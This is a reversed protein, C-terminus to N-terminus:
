DPMYEYKNSKFIRPANHGSCTKAQALMPLTEDLIFNGAATVAGGTLNDTIGQAGHFIALAFKFSQSRM